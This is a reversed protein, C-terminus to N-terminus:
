KIRLSDKGGVLKRSGAVADVLAQLGVFLLFIVWAIALGKLFVRGGTDGSFTMAASIDGNENFFVVPLVLTMGIIVLSSVTFIVAKELPDFSPGLTYAATSYLVAAFGIFAIITILAGL